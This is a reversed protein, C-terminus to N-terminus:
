ALWTFKACDFKAEGVHSTAVAFLCCISDGGAKLSRLLEFVLTPMSFTEGGCISIECVRQM